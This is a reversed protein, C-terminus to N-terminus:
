RFSDARLPRGPFGSHLGEESRMRLSVWSVQPVPTWGPARRSVGVGRACCWQRAPEAELVVRQCFSWIAVLDVNSFKSKGTGFPKRTPLM